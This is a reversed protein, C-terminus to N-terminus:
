RSSESSGGRDRVGGIYLGALSTPDSVSPTVPEFGTAGVLLASVLPFATRSATARFGSPSSLTYGNPFLDASCSRRRRCGAGRVLLKASQSGESQSGEAPRRPRACPPQLASGRTPQFTPVLSPGSTPSAQDMRGDASPWSQASRRHGHGRGPPARAKSCNSPKTTTPSAASARDARSATPHSRGSTTTSSM